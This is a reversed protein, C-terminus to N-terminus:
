RSASAKTGTRSRSARGVITALRQAALRGFAGAKGTVMAVLPRLDGRGAYACMVARAHLVARGLERLDLQRRRTAVVLAAALYSESLWIANRRRGASGVPQGCADRLAIALLNRGAAAAVNSQLNPRGVTPEVIYPQGDRRDRKVELSGLGVLGARDFLERTLRHLQPDDTTTCIATNGTGLPWQLLKRGTQHGLERGSRDRYVLCFHVDSDGGDIWEQVVFRDSADFLRFPIAALDAPSSLRYAKNRGSVDHWRRDRTFPKLVVPFTLERLAADLEAATSVVHTRPVPFGHAQAWPAFASKDGLIRVTAPDPLVFAYRARLEDANRAVIDVLTDQAVFLAQREHRRSQARLADLWARESDEPVSVVETWASSRCCPSALDLALGYLSVGEDRLSRAVGLGGPLDAGTVVVPVRDGGVRRGGDTRM